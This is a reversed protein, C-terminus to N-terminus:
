NLKYREPLDKSQKCIREHIHWMDKTQDIIGEKLTVNNRQLSYKMEGWAFICIYTLDLEQNYETIFDIENYMQQLDIKNM